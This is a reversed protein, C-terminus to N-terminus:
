RASEREDLLARLASASGKPRPRPLELWKSSPPREPLLLRGRQALEVASASIGRTSAPAVLRAVPVGRDTIFITAGGRIERLLASLNNRAESVSVSRM